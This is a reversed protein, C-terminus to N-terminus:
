PQIVGSSILSEISSIFSFSTARDNDAWYCINSQTGQPIHTSDGTAATVDVLIVGEAVLYGIGATFTGDSIRDDCWLSALGKIWKPIADRPPHVTITLLIPPTMNGGYDGVCMVPTNGIPFFSYQEPSCSASATVTGYDVLVDFPAGAGRSNSAYVEVNVRGLTDISDSAVIRGNGAVVRVEMEARDPALPPWTVTSDSAPHLGFSGNTYFRTKINPDYENNPLKFGDMRYIAVVADFNLSSPIRSRPSLPTCTPIDNEVSCMLDGSKQFTHGLGMAHIFEHAATSAVANDARKEGRYISCVYTQIKSTSNFLYAM